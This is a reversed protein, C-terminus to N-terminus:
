QQTPSVSPVVQSKGQTRLVLPNSSSHSEQVTSPVCQSDGRTRPVLPHSPNHSEFAAYPVCRSEGPSGGTDQLSPSPFFQSITPSGTPIGPSEGETMRVVPCSPSHSVCQVAETCAPIRKTHLPVPASLPCRIFLTPLGPHPM